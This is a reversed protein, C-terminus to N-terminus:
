QCGGARSEGTSSISFAAWNADMVNVDEIASLVPVAERRRLSLRALESAESLEMAEDPVVSVSQSPHPNAAFRKHNSKISRNSNNDSTKPNTRPIAIHISAQLSHMLVCTM